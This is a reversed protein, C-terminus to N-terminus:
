VPMGVIVGEFVLKGRVVGQSQFVARRTKLETNIVILDLRDGPVVQGRFKVGDLAAFGLFREDTISKKHYFTSLQAAAEIMLVGPLLPRGPIHGRVWFEDDGVSKYGVAIKHEPDFKVVADLQQMEYRQPIFERVQETTYQPNEFDYAELDVLLKPPM